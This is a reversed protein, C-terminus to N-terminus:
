RAAPAAAIAEIEVVWRPDALGAVIVVTSAPKATGLVRDRTRRSPALQDAGVLFANVRVLHEAGMGAGHLLGLVNAWAQDHQADAGDVTSGDADVGVQGSVHLFRLGPDTEIAQSYRSAAAAQQAPDHPTHTTQMM